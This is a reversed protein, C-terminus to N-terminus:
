RQGEGRGVAGSIKPGEGGDRTQRRQLREFRLGFAVNNYVSHSLTRSSSCLGSTAASPWPTSAPDTFPGERTTSMAKSGSAAILDNMRNMCRLVTTKGCGSPGILATIANESASDEHRSRGSPEPLVTRSIATWSWPRIEREHKPSSEPSASEARVPESSPM